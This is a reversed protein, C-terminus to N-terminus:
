NAHSFPDWPSACRDAACYAGGARVHSGSAFSSSSHALWRIADGRWPGAGGRHRMPVLAARRTV